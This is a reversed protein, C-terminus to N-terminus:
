ERNSVAFQRHIVEQVRSIFGGASRPNRNLALCYESIHGIVCSIATEGLLPCSIGLSVTYNKKLRSRGGQM